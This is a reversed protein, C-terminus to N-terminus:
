DRRGLRERQDDTLATIRRLYGTMFALQEPSLEDLMPRGAAVLPGYAQWTLANGQETMEVLVARRDTESRRRRVLGRKALRDVLATTAAPRLGIGASLQGATKPGDVLWDLCRLDSPGLDLLRGVADDFAQVSRQYQQMASGLAEVLDERAPQRSPSM